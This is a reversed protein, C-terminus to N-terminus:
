QAKSLLRSHCSYRDLDGHCAIDNISLDRRGRRQGVGLLFLEHEHHSFFFELQADSHVRVRLYLYFLEEVPGLQNPGFNPTVMWEYDSNHITINLTGSVTIKESTMSGVCTQSDNSRRFHGIRYHWGVSHNRVVNVIKRAVREAEKRRMM